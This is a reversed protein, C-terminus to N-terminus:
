DTRCWSRDIAGYNYLIIAYHISDHSDHSYCIAFILLMTTDMTRENSVVRCSGIEVSRCITDAHRRVVVTVNRVGIELLRASGGSIWAASLVAFLHQGRHGGATGYFGDLRYGGPLTHGLLYGPMDSAEHGQQARGGEILKVRCKTESVFENDEIYIILVYSM